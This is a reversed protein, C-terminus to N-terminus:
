NDDYDTIPSQSFESSRRPIITFHCDDRNWSTVEKKSGYFTSRFTSSLTTEKYRTNEKKENEKKKTPNRWEGGTKIRARKKEPEDFDNQRPDGM